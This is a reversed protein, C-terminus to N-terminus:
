REDNFRVMKKVGIALNEDKGVKKVRTWIPLSESFCEFRVISGSLSTFKIDNTFAFPVMTAFILSFRIAIM